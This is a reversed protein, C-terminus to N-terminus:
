EVSFLYPYVPQGGHHVESTTGPRMEALWEVIRRTDAAHAGEGEIVTVIEHEGKGSVLLDLLLIAADAATAPSPAVVEIRERSIGLWDGKKVEGASPLPPGHPGPWRM